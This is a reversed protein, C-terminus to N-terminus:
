GQSVSTLLPCVERNRPFIIPAFLVGFDSSSVASKRFNTCLFFLEIASSTRFNRFSLYRFRFVQIYSDSFRNLFVLRAFPLRFDVPLPWFRNDWPTSFLTLINLLAVGVNLVAFLQMHESWSWLHSCVTKRNQCGLRSLELVVAGASSVAAHFREMFSSIFWKVYGIIVNISATKLRSGSLKELNCNLQVSSAHM